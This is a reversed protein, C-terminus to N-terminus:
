KLFPNHRAEQAITTEPGHGPYVETEPPLTLLKTRISRILREHNGGPLDTRGVSGRFLTDGAIVRQALPIYFSVSAPSHGPTELVHLRYQGLELVMGETLAHEIRTLRPAPLGFMAAQKPVMQYLDAEGPHMYAEVGLAEKVQALAGVHDLHAHTILIAKVKVGLREVEDLIVAPEDGPDIVFAERTQEDALVACNQQFLLGVPVVSHIM